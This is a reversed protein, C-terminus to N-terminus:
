KQSRQLIILADLSTIRDDGSVDADKLYEGRVAKQLAISADAATIKYDCNLDGSPRGLEGCTYTCCVKGEDHYYYTTDCTNNAGNNGTVSSSPQREGSKILGKDPDLKGLYKSTKRPKKLEKDWYTTSRYVYHNKGQTKVELCKVGQDRQEKLWERAWQEM